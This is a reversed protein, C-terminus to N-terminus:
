EGRYPKIIEGNIDIYYLLNWEGWVDDMIAFLGDYYNAIVHQFRPEIITKGESDIVGWLGDIKIAALGDSFLNAGEYQFDIVVQGDKSIFGYKGDLRAAILGDVSYAVVEYLADVVLEGDVNILGWKGDIHVAAIGGIFAEAYAYARPIIVNGSRDLYGWDRLWDIAFPALGESFYGVRDYPLSLAEFGHRDFFIWSGEGESAYPNERKLTLGLGETFSYARDYELPVIIEGKANIYGYGNPFFGTDRPKRKNGVLAIGESFRHAIDYQPKIIVDGHENIYGLKGNLEIVAKNEFFRKANDFRAEIVVLGTRDMYGYKGNEEFPFYAVNESEDFHVYEDHVAKEVEISNPQANDWSDRFSPNGGWVGYAIYLELEEAFENPLFPIIVDYFVSNKSIEFGNVFMNEEHGGWMTVDLLKQGRKTEFVYHIRANVYSEYDEDEVQIMDTDVIKKLMDIHEELMNGDVVIKHTNEHGEDGMNMLSDVSVPIYTLIFPSMFYITLNLEKLSGHEIIKSFRNLSREPNMNNAGYSTLISTILVLLISFGIIIHKKVKM